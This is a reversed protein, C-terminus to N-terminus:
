RQRRLAGIAGLALLSFSAPEPIYAIWAETDGGPNIGYGAITLGDESIGTASLLTWGTLDFGHDSELVDKLDRMGDAEDWLFAKTGGLVSDCGVIVSGDATVGLARNGSFAHGGFVWDPLHGLPTVVGDDWRVAQWGSEAYGALPRYPRM